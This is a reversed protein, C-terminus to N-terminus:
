EKLDTHAKTGQLRYKLLLCLIVVRQWVQEKQAVGEM